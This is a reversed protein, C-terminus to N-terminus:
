LERIEWDAQLNKKDLNFTMGITVIKKPKHRYGEFYKKEFIQEIAHEVPKNFKFEFIYVHTQNEIVADIRGINTAKEVEIDAGLMSLVVFFLSQYYHEMPIQINYPVKAFFTYMNECFDSMDGRALDKKFTKIFDNLKNIPLKAM